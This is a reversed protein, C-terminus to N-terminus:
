GRLIEAFGAAEAGRRYVDAHKGPCTAKWRMRRSLIYGGERGLEILRRTEAQVEAPTAYPLTRQTSLGGFFALRGRFRGIM